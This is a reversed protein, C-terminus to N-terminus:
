GPGNTAFLSQFVLLRESAEKENGTLANIDCLQRIVRETDM